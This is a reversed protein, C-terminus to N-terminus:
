LLSLQRKANEEKRIRAINKRRTQVGKQAGRSRLNFLVRNKLKIQELETTDRYWSTGNLWQMVLSELDQPRAKPYKKRKWRAIADAIEKDNLPM